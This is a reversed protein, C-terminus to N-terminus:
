LVGAPERFSEAHVEPARQVQNSRALRILGVTRIGDLKLKHETVCPLPADEYIVGTWSLLAYDLLADTLAATDLVPETQQGRKEATVVWTTCTKELERHREKTIPRLTYTADKDPDPVGPLDADKVVIRDRETLLQLM